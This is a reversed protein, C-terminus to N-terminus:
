PRNTRLNINTASDIAEIHEKLRTAMRERTQESLGPYNTDRNYSDRLIRKTLARGEANTAMFNTDFYFTGPRNTLVLVPEAPPPDYKFKRDDVLYGDEFPILRLSLSAPVPSPPWEPHQMSWFMQPRKTEAALVLTVTALFLLLSTKMYLKNPKTPKSRKRIM